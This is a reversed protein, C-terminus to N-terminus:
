KKNTSSSSSSWPTQTVCRAQRNTVGRYPHTHLSTCQQLLMAESTNVGVCSNLLHLSLCTKNTYHHLCIRPQECKQLCLSFSPVKKTYSHTFAFLCLGKMLLNFNFLMVTRNLFTLRSEVAPGPASIVIFEFVPHQFIFKLSGGIWGIIEKEKQKYCILQFQLYNISNFM